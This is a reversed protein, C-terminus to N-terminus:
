SASLQGLARAAFRAALACPGTVHLVNGDPLATVVSTGGYRLCWGSSGDVSVPTAEAANRRLGALSTREVVLTM